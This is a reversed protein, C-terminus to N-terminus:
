IALVVLVLVMITAMILEILVEQQVVMYDVVAELVLIQIQEVKELHVVIHHHILIQEALYKLEEM